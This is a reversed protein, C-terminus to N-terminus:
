KYPRCLPDGFVIDRWKLVPSAMYFSEALNYGSTYRDFLINPRALALTYPELVYGKVGTVGNRILDTIVSQGSTVPKMTRASTSVFTEALCGPKFRIANYSSASFSHDNSGWSCYGMLPEKPNIFEATRDVTVQIGKAGLVRGAEVMSANMQGYGDQKVEAVSDIFYPGKDGKAALSHDVLSRADDYTYGDLRTVLFFGYKAKSFKESKGFYPNIVQRVEEAKPERMPQLNMDMTAIFSDLSYGFNTSDFLRIPMGKVLVIYDIPTSSAKVKDHVVPLIGQKFAEINTDEGADMIVQVVNARPVGRKWAYYLALREGEPNPRNWLVLVHKGEETSDWAAPIAPIPKTQVQAPVPGNVCGALAVLCISATVM